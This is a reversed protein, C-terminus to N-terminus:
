RWVAMRWLRPSLAQRYHGSNICVRVILPLRQAMDLAAGFLLWLAAAFLAVMMLSAAGRTLMIGCTVLAAAAAALALKNQLKQVSGTRWNLLPGLPLLLAFPITLPAFVANFYPAGVSIKGMGLADLILPYITGIFVTM